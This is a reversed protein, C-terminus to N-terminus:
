AARRLCERVANSFETMSFPKALVRDVRARNIAQLQPLTLRGSVIMLRGVYHSARARHSLEIGDLGPMNVDFVLLDYDQLRTKLHDWAANGDALMTVEHGGRRLAEAIAEAVLPEDEALFVRAHSATATAVAPVVIETAEPAPWVPLLLRFTSGEGPTTELEIRGGLESVLHWVTALGLGTGKGVEKTTYFPEFIRERVAPTMGLGNDSVTLQQWGLPQRRAAAAMPAASDSSLAKAEVRISPTWGGSQRSLKELLTDRSNLLLNLLIQNLDTANLWLPPLDNPVASEFVIRRDVTSRM